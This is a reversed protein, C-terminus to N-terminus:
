GEGRRPIDWPVVMPCMSEGITKLKTVYIEREQYSWPVHPLLGPFVMKKAGRLHLIIVYMNWRVLKGLTTAQLAPYIWLDTHHFVKSLYGTHCHIFNEELRQKSLIMPFYVLSRSFVSLQIPSRIFSRKPPNEVVTHNAGSVIRSEQGDM